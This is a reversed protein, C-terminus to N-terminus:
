PLQQARTNTPVSGGINSLIPDRDNGQGVYLVRGDMNVDTVLYGAATNTPVSGGVTVLIPDRDNASGVYRLAADNM